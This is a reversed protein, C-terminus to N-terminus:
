PIYSLTDSEGGIEIVERLIPMGPEQSSPIDIRWSRMSIPPSPSVNDYMRHLPLIIFRLLEHMSSIFTRLPDTRLPDFTVGVLTCQSCFQTQTQLM